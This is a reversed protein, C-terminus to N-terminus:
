DAESYRGKRLTTTAMRIRSLTGKALLRMHDCPQTSPDARLSADYRLLELDAPTIDVQVQEASEALLTGTPRQRHQQDLYFGRPYTLRIM